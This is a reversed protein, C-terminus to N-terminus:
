IEHARRKRQIYSVFERYGAARAHEVAANFGDGVRAPIHADSALTTPIGAEHAAHLLATSPYIGGLKNMGNTNVEVACGGRVAAAVIAANFGFVDSPQHGFLKPLDPHALVDALGSDALEGILEAYERFVADVDRHGWEELEAPDDLGFAGIWHVSGLIVDWNYPALLRRLADARGPIWDMELGLLIPLGDRKGTEILEVYAPLSLNVHDNWYRKTMAALHPNPDADWWGDLLDYAERFRFLHETIAVAELGNSRAAEVYRDLLARDVPPQEGHPQLHVHSDVRGSM